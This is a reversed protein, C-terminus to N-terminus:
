SRSMTMRRCRFRSAEWPPLEDLLPGLVGGAELLARLPNEGGSERVAEAARWSLRRLREHLTQRDHGRSSGVMLLEEAAIFPLQEAVRREVVRPHVILGETVNRAIVLLADATLFAQPIAIRRLASDDLTREFWQTAAMSGVSTPFSLLYKALASMREARMPNRKYPMASSGVQSERYPEEVEGWSQLLRLDTSFKHL